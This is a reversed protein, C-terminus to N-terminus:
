YDPFASPLSHFHFILFHSVGFRENTLVFNQPRLGNYQAPDARTLYTCNRNAHHRQSSINMSILQTFIPDTYPPPRNAQNVKEHPSFRTFLLSSRTVRPRNRVYPLTTKDRGRKSAPPQNLESLADMISM